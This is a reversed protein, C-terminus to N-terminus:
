LVVAEHRTHISPLHAVLGGVFEQLESHTLPLPFDGVCKILEMDLALHCLM